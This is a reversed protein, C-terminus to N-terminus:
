KRWYTEGAKTACAGEMEEKNIGGLAWGPSKGPRVDQGHPERFELGWDRIPDGAERIVTAELKAPRRTETGVSRPIGAAHLYATKRADLAYEASVFLRPHWSSWWMAASGSSSLRVRKWSLTAPRSAPPRTSKTSGVASFPLSMGERRCAGKMRKGTWEKTLGSVLGSRQRRLVKRAGGTPFRMGVIGALLYENEPLTGRYFLMVPAGFIERLQPPYTSDWYFICGLVAPTLLRETRQVEDLIAKANWGGTRFRRRTLVSLDGVTRAFVRCPSGLAEILVLKERPPLFGVHRLWILPTGEQENM